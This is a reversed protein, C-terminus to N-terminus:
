AVAMAMAITGLKRVAAGAPHMDRVIVRAVASSAIITGQVMRCILFVWIDQALLCGVSAAVFIAVAVLIVPRRGYRDSLPGIVIQLVATVALYGAMSISVVAYSVGFTEAINVLSPLFMNFTLTAIGTLCILTFTTPPTRSM